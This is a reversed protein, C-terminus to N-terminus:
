SILLVGPTNSNKRTVGAVVDRANNPDSVHLFPEKTKQEKKYFPGASDNMKPHQNKLMNIIEAGAWIVPCYGHAAYVNIPRYYYFAPDFAM